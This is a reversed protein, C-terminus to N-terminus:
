DKATDGDVEEPQEAIKIIKRIKEIYIQWKNKFSQFDIQKLEDLSQTNEPLYDEENFPVIKGLISFINKIHESQSKRNNELNKLDLKDINNCLNKFVSISTGNIQIDSKM